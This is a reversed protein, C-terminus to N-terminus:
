YDETDNYYLKKSKTEPIEELRKKANVNVINQNHVNINPHINIKKGSIDESFELTAKISVEMKKNGSTPNYFNRKSERMDNGKFGIPDLIIKNAAKRQQTQDSSMVVPKSLEEYKKFDKQKMVLNPMNTSTAILKKYDSHSPRGSAQQTLYDAGYDDNNYRLNKNSIKNSIFKNTRTQQFAPEDIALDRSAHENEIFDNLQHNKITPLKFSKDKFSFPQVKWEDNEDSWRSLETIRKIEGDSLMIRLMGHYLKNEKYMDRIANTFEERDRENEYRFDGVESTLSKVKARLRAILKTKEELETQMNNYQKNDIYLGNEEERKREHLIEM